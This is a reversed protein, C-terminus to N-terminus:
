EEGGFGIRSGRISNCRRVFRDVIDLLKEGNASVVVEVTVTNLPSLENLQEDTVM